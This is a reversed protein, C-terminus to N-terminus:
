WHFFLTALSEVITKANCSEINDVKLKHIISTKNPTKGIICNIM